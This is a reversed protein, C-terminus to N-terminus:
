PASVVNSFAWTNSANTQYLSFTPATNDGNADFSVSGIVGDYQIQAVADRLNARTVSKGAAILQRMATIEIMTADYALAAFPILAPNYHPQSAYKATYASIFEQAHLGTLAQRDPIPTTGYTNAAATGAQQQYTPDGAVGSSCLMPVSSGQAALAAKLVGADGGAIGAFYVFNAGSNVIASVVTNVSASDQTTLTNTGIVTGGQATFAQSFYDATPKGYLAASDIVVYASNAHLLSRAVSADAKAEVDDAGLLRFYSEPKGAPHMAGFDIGYTIALEAKTLGPNTNTPSVMVLTANNVLPIETKAVSSAFPGVLAIVDPDSILQRVNEAGVNPDHFGGPGADSKEVVDLVYGNALNPNQSIALDVGYQSALGSDADAGTQPFDTAIVLRKTTLTTPTTTSAHFLGWIPNGTPYQSLVGTSLAVLLLASIMAVWGARLGSGLGLAKRVWDMDYDFSDPRVPRANRRTLSRLGEPLQEAHPMQAGGVLVPIVPINHRLAAEAELRVYSTNPSNVQVLWSPSIVVIMARCQKIAKEIVQMFDAGPLITAVDMFIDDRTIRHTQVLWDRIRGAADAADERRYSIFIKNGKAAM